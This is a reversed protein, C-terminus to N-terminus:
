GARRFSNKKLGGTIGRQAEAQKSTVEAYHNKIVPSVDDSLLSNIEEIASMDFNGGVEEEFFAAEEESLESKAEPLPDQSQDPKRINNIANLDVNANKFFQSVKDQQQTPTGNPNVNAHKKATFFETPEGTGVKKLYYNSVIWGALCIPDAKMQTMAESLSLLLEETEPDMISSGCAPCRNNYIADVWEPTISIGCGNCKFRSM